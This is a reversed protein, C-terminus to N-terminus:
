FGAFRIGVGMFTSLDGSIGDAIMRPGLNIQFNKGFELGIKLSTTFGGETSKGESSLYYLYGAGPTISFRNMQLIQKAEAIAIANGGKSAVSLGLRNGKWFHTVYDLNLMPMVVSETQISGYYSLSSSEGFAIEAGIQIGAESVEKLIMNKEVRRAPAKYFKSAESNGDANKANDAVKSVRVYGMKTSSKEGSRSERNEFVEFRNDTKLGEKKGIKATIPGTSFVVTKVKFPEYNNAHTILADDITSNALDINIEAQSKPTSVMKLGVLESKNGTTTGIGETVSILKIPFKYNMFNNLKTQDAGEWWFEDWFTTVLMQKLDIQMLYSKYSTTYTNDKLMKSYESKIPGTQTVIFYVNNLMNALGYQQLLSAGEKSSKAKLVQADTANYEGRKTLVDTTPIGKEDLLIKALIKNPVKQEYVSKLIMSYLESSVVEDINNTSSKKEKKGKKSAPPPNLVPDSININIINNGFSNDDYKGSVKTANLADESFSNGSTFKLFHLSLSNREYKSSEIQGKQATVANLSFLSFTFVILIFGKKLKKM